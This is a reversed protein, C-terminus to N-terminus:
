LGKRKLFAPDTIIKVLLDAISRDNKVFDDAVARIACVDGDAEFRGTSERFAQVVFCRKARESDKLIATIGDLGNFLHNKGDLDFINGASDIPKGNDNTRPLGVADYDDMGFGVGDIREHCARCSPSATHVAFRERVTAGPLVPLPDIKIDSPFPMIECLMHERVFVGRSIPNPDTGNALSALVSGLALLGRRKQSSFSITEVGNDNSPSAGYYSALIQPGVSFDNTYLDEFKAHKNRILYDFTDEAEKAMAEKIQDTYAPFKSKDKSITGARDYALYSQAFQTLGVKAKPSKMLRQAQQVLITSKLIEASNALNRLEDDPVSSWFFYSLAHALEHATLSGANGIESRYLFHPSSLLVRLLIEFAAPNGDSSFSHFTALLRSSEETSLPRRWLKPGLNQILTKACVEGASVSCGSVSEFRTATALLEKAINKAAAHYAELHEVGVLNTQSNNKFGLIRKEAPFSAVHHTTLGLLDQITNQYEVKTLLRLQPDVSTGAPAATCAPYQPALIKNLNGSLTRIDIPKAKEGGGPHNGVPERGDGGEVNGSKNKGFSGPKGVPGSCGLAVLSLTLMFSFSLPIYKMLKALTRYWFDPRKRM